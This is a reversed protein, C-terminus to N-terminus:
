LPRSCSGIRLWKFGTWMTAGQKELIWKLIKRGDLGPDELHDRENLNGVLIQTCKEGRGHTSHAGGVVDMKVAYNLLAVM